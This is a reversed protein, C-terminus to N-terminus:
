GKVGYLSFHSYQAMTGANPVITISTIASTSRWVGSTLEVYGGGNADYGTLTRATKFKNTNTYDLIDTISVGFVGSISAPGSLACPYYAINVQSATAVSAGGSYLEHLTYISTNDSNFTARLSINDGSNRSMARLQLHKYTQPISNFSVAGSGGAGVTLTGISEFSGFTTIGLGGFAPNIWAGIGTGVRSRLGYASM